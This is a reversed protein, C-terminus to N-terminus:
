ESFLRQCSRRSARRPTHGQQRKASRGAGHRRDELGSHVRHAHLLRTPFRTGCAKNANASDALRADRASVPLTSRMPKKPIGERARSYKTRGGCSAEVPSGGHDSSRHRAMANLLGGTRKELMASGTAPMMRIYQPGASPCRSWPSLSVAPDGKNLRIAGGLAVAFRAQWIASHFRCARASSARIADTDSIRPEAPRSIAPRVLVTRTNCSWCM